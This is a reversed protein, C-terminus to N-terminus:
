VQQGNLTTITIPSSNGHGRTKWLFRLATIEELRANGECRIWKRSNSYRPFCEQGIVRPRPPSSSLATLNDLTDNPSRTILESSRQTAM